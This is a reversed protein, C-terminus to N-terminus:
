NNIERYYKQIRDLKKQAKEKDIKLGEVNTSLLFSGYEIISHIDKNQLARDFSAMYRLYERIPEIRNEFDNYMGYISIDKKTKLNISKSYQVYAKKFINLFQNGLRLAKMELLEYKISEDIIRKDTEINNEECYKRIFEGQTLKKWDVDEIEIDLNYALSFLNHTLQLDAFFTDVNLTGKFLRIEITKRNQNNIVLYRDGNKEIAKMKKLSKSIKNDRVWYADTLFKCFNFSGKRRSVQGFQEKYTEIIYWLRNVVEERDEDNPATVHFHLGCNQSDHSSYGNAIAGEFAKKFDEYHQMIYNYTQPQSVIEFGGRNLSGDTEFVCNLYKELEDIAGSTNVERGKRNPEVELEFGIYRLLAKDKEEETAFPIWESGNHQVYHYSKIREDSMDREESEIQEYCDDCYCYGDDENYYDMHYIEGCRDCTFYNYDYCNQCIADGNVTTYAYDRYYVEGCDSCTFYDNDYCEECIISGDNVSINNYEDNHYYDNCCDCRWFENELCDECIEVYEGNYFAMNLKSVEVEQGCCACERKEEEM